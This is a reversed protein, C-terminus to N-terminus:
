RGRHSSSRPISPASGRSSPKSTAITKRSCAARLARHVRRASEPAHAPRGATVLRIWMEWDAFYSLKPDFGGVQAVLEASAMVSSPGAVAGPYRLGALLHEAPPSPVRDLPRGSADVIVTETYVFDADTETALDLAARLRRPLWRDDDDLFALWVGTAAEIGLNRAASVGRWIEQRVTRVRPDSLGILYDETEDTSADDVVIVELDVSDQGLASTLARALFPRRNRTPIIVSVERNM